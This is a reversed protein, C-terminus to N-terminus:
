VTYVTFYIGLSCLFEPIRFRFDPFIFLFLCYILCFNQVIELDTILNTVSILDRYLHDSTIAEMSVCYISKLVACFLSFNYCM